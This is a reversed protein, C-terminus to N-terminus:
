YSRSRREESKPEDGGGDLPEEPLNLASVSASVLRQLVGVERVARAHSATAAANTAAATPDLSPLLEAVHSLLPTVKGDLITALAKREKTHTQCRERLKSAALKSATAEAMATAAEKTMSEDGDRAALRRRVEAEVEAEFSARVERAAEARAAAAAAEADRRSARVMAAAEAERAEAAEARAALAAERRAAAALAAAAEVEAEPAATTAAAADAGGRELAVRQLHILQATKRALTEELDRIKKEAKALQDQLHLAAADKENLKSTLSILVGRQKQM